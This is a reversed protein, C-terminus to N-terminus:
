KRMETIISALTHVKNRNYTTRALEQYALKIEQDTPIEDPCSELTEIIGNVYNDAHKLLFEHDHKCIEAIFPEFFYKMPINWKVTDDQPHTLFFDKMSNKIDREYDFGDPQTHKPSLPQYFQIGECARTHEISLRLYEAMDLLDTYSPIDDAYSITSLLELARQRDFKM